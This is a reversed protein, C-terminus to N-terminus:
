HLGKRWTCLSQVREVCQLLMITHCCGDASGLCVCGAQTTLHMSHDELSTTWHYVGRPVYLVDGPALVVEFHPSGWKGLVGESIQDFSNRGSALMLYSLGCSIM